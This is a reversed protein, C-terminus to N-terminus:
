VACEKLVANLFSPVTSNALLTQLQADTQDKIIVTMCNLTHHRVGYNCNLMRLLGDRLFKAPVADGLHHGDGPEFLSLVASSQCQLTAPSDCYSFPQRAELRVGYGARGAVFANGSLDNCLSDFKETSLAQLCQGQPQSDIVPDEQTRHARVSSDPPLDLNYGRWTPRLRKDHEYVARVNSTGEFFSNSYGTAIIPVRQSRLKTLTPWWTAPYHAFGPNIALVLDPVDTVAAHYPGPVVQEFYGDPSKGHQRLDSWSELSGDKGDVGVGNFLISVKMGKFPTEPLRFIKVLRRSEASLPGMLFEAWQMKPELSRNVGVVHLQIKKTEKARKMVAPLSGHGSCLSLAYLLTLPGNARAAASATVNVNAVVRRGRLLSLLRNSRPPVAWTLLYDKDESWSFGHQRQMWTGHFGMSTSRAFTVLGGQDSSRTQIGHREQQGKREVAIGAVLHPVWFFAACRTIAAASSLLLM